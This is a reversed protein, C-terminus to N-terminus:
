NNGSANDIRQAPIQLADAFRLLGGGHAWSDAGHGVAALM